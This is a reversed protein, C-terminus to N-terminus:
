NITQLKNERYKNVLEETHVLASISKITKIELESVSNEGLMKLNSNILEMQEDVNSGPEIRVRHWQTHIVSENEIIQKAIRIQLSGDSVIEIKDIVTKRKIM